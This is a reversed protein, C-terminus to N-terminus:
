IVFVDWTDRKNTIKYVFNVLPLCMRPSPLVCEFVLSVLWVCM